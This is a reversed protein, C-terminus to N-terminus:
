SYPLWKAYNEKIKSGYKRQLVISTERGQKLLDLWTTCMAVELEEGVKEDM